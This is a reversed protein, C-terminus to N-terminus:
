RIRIGYKNSLEAELGKISKELEEKDLTNRVGEYIAPFSSGVAAGALGLGAVKLFKRRSIPRDSVEFSEEHIDSEERLEATSESRERPSREPNM